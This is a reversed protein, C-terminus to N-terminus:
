DLAWVLDLTSAFLIAQGKVRHVLYRLEGREQVDTLQATVDQYTHIPSAGTRGQFEAIPTWDKYGELVHSLQAGANPDGLPNWVLRWIARAIPVQPLDAHFGRASATAASGPLVWESSPVSNQMAFTFGPNGIPGYGRPDPPILDLTTQLYRGSQAKAKWSFPLAFAALLGAFLARRKM